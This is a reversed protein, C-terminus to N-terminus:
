ACFPGIIPVRIGNLVLTPRTKAQKANWLRNKIAYFLAPALLEESRVEVDLHDVSVPSCLACQSSLGMRRGATVRLLDPM